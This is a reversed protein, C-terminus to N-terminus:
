FPWIVDLVNHLWGQCAQNTVTGRGTFGDMEAEAICAGLIENQDNIDDRRM